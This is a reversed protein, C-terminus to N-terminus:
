FRVKEIKKGVRKYTDKCPRSAVVGCSSIAYPEVRLLLPISKSFNEERPLQFIEFKKSALEQKPLPVLNKHPSNILLTAKLPKQSM